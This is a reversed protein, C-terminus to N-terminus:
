ADSTDALHIPAESLGSGKALQQPWVPSFGPQFSHDKEEGPSDSAGLTGTGM